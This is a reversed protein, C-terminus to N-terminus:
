RPQTLLHWVLAAGALTVTASVAALIIRGLRKAPYAAIAQGALGIAVAVGILVASALVIGVPNMGTCETSAGTCSRFPGGAGSSDYDHLSISLWYMAALNLPLAICTLMVTLVPGLVHRARVGTSADQAPLRRDLEDLRASTTLPLAASAVPGANPDSGTPLQPPASRRSLTVLLAAVGAGAGALLLMVFVISLFHWGVFGSVM